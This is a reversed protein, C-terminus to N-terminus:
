NCFVFPLISPFTTTLSPRLDEEACQSPSVAPDADFLVNKIVLHRVFATRVGLSGSGRNYGAYNLVSETALALGSHQSLGCSTNDIALLYEILHSRTTSPAWRMSEQLIGISRAAFDKV